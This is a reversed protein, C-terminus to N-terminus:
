MHEAGAATLQSAGTAMCLHPLHRALAAHALHGAAHRHAAVHGDAQVAAGRQADDEAPLQARTRPLTSWGLGAM